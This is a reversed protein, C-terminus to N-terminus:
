IGVVENGVRSGEIRGVFKWGDVFGLWVGLRTGVEFGETPGIVGGVKV